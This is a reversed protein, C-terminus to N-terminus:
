TVRLDSILPRTPFLGRLEITFSLHGACPPTPSLPFPLDRLELLKGRRVVESVARQAGGASLRINETAELQWTGRLCCQLAVRVAFGVRERWVFPDVLDPICM